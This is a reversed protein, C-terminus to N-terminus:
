REFLSCKKEMVDTSTKIGIYIIKKRGFFCFVFINVYRLKSM